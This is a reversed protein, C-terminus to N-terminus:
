TVFYGRTFLTLIFILALVSVFFYFVKTVKSQEALLISWALFFPYLHLAYRPMGQFTGTTWPILICVAIFIWYSLRIKKISLLLVHCYFLVTFFELVAIWYNPQNPSYTLLIKVYHWVVIPPFTFHSQKWIEMSRFLTRWDGFTVQLYYLYSGFAFPVLLVALIKSKWIESLQLKRKISKVIYKVDWSEKLTAQALIYELGIYVGLALGNLRAISALGAFLSAVLWNQKRAFFISHTALFFFLADNYVAGYFFSTPYLLLIALFFYWNFQGDRKTLFYLVPVTCIFFFHSVFLASYLYSIGAIRHVTWILLPYLPFFAQKLPEYGHRAISLYHMGDFNGWIGVLYPYKRAYESVFPTFTPIFTLLKTALVAVLLLFIKWLLLISM